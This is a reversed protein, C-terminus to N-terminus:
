DSGDEDEEGKLGAEFVAKDFIAEAIIYGGGISMMVPKLGEEKQKDFQESAESFSLLEYRKGRYKVKM